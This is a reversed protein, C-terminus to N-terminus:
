EAKEAANDEQAEAPAAAKAAEAAKAEEAAKAAEAAKKALEEAKLKMHKTVPEFKKLSSESDYVYAEVSAEGSGFKTYVHKVIVLNEAAKLQSAIDKRIEANSPTAKGIFSLSRKVEKRELLQKEETSIIKVAM